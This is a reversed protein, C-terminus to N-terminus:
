KFVHVEYTEKSFSSHTIPIFTVGVSTGELNHRVANETESLHFTYKAEM